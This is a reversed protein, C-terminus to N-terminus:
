NISVPTAGNPSHCSSDWSLTFVQYVGRKAAADLSASDRLVYHGITDFYKSGFMKTRNALFRVIGGPQSLRTLDRPLNTNPASPHRSQGPNRGRGSTGMTLIPM